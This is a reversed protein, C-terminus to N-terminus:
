RGATAGESPPLGDIGLLTSAEDRIDHEALSPGHGVAVPCNVTIAADLRLCGMRNRRVIVFRGGAGSSAPM